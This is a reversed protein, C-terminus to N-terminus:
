EANLKEANRNKIDPWINKASAIHGPVDSLWKNQVTKNLNLYLKGDEIYWAEPDVSLKKYLVVGMACYGGFQPAYREPDNRFLDRNEASAFQYIANKYTATYQNSGKVPKNETFYAVTDYGSIALDNADVSMDIDAALVSSSLIMSAAMLAFFKKLITM